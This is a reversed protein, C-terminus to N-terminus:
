EKNWKKIENYISETTKKLDMIDKSNDFTIYEVADKAFQVKDIAKNKKESYLKGISDYQSITKIDGQTIETIVSDPLYNEIEKGKTIWCLANINELETKIRKKTDNIPTQRTRKDSDMVLVCNRNTSLVNILDKIPESDATYHKLLRGGYYLYQYHSGEEYENGCFIHLWKEIYIRDSPGEVWIIGNSQLIDSAKVGLDNLLETNAKLGDIKSIKSFTDEKEVHYISVEKCKSIENIVVNSHSTLYFQTEHANAYEVLYKILRRQLAPHLNNELEEFGYVYKKDTGNIAPICHIMLLVLLITKLGSGCTSLPFRNGTSEELFVEWLPQEEYDIEQIRIASFCGDEGMITNLEKLVTDEIVKEDLNSKNVFLRVLNTAGDGNPTIPNYNNEIDFAREQKIDRDADLRCWYYNAFPSSRNYKEAFSNWSKWYNKDITVEPQTTGVSFKRLYTIGSYKCSTDIYLYKDFNEDLRVIHMRMQKYWLDFRPKTLKLALTISKKYDTLIRDDYVAGIIDLCSSKGTNNKGIFLSINSNLDIRSTPSLSKYNGVEFYDFDFM